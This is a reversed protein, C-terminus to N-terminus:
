VTKVLRDFFFHIGGAITHGESWHDITYCLNNFAHSSDAHPFEDVVASRDCAAIGVYDDQPIHGLYSLSINIFKSAAEQFKTFIISGEYSNKVKNVIIGFRNRGYQQHLIKIVAYSDLLSSPDNCLVLLIDQSAHTLNMVQSSIGSAVDIIMYDVDDELSSFSRVLEISQNATLDAMKQIGSTGPIIKLGHPGNICIDNLKSDGTLVDQINKDAHIGLMADVNALSLDADFLLVKKKMKALSIALNVSITTKGVGGKGGTVSIIRMPSKSNNQLGSM